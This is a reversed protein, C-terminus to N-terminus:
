LNDDASYSRTLWYALTCGVLVTASSAVLMGGSLSQAIVLWPASSILLPGVVAITIPPWRGGRWPLGALALPLCIAGALAITWGGIQHTQVPLWRNILAEGPGFTYWQPHAQGDVFLRAVAGDYSLALLRPQGDPFVDAFRLPPRDDAVRTLPLRMRVLLDAGAQILSINHGDIGRGFNVILGETTRDPERAAVQAVLTFARTRAIEAAVGRLPESSMLWRQYGVGVGSETLTPRGQAVLPRAFPGNGAPPLESFDYAFLPQRAIADGPTQVAQADDATFARNYLATFGVYGPWFRRGDDAAGIQLTYRDSWTTPLTARQWRTVMWTSGALWIALGVFVVWAPTMRVGQHIWFGLREVLPLMPQALWWAGLAAGSTNAVVDLLAATRGPITLQAVEIGLAVSASLLIVGARQGPLPVSCGALFWRLAMGLPIFLVINQAMDFAHSLGTMLEFIPNAPWPRTFAFPYLTVMGVLLITPLLLAVGYRRLAYHHGMPEPQRSM